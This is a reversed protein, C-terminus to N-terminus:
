KQVEDFILIYSKFTAEMYLIIHFFVFVPQINRKKVDSQTNMLTVRNM